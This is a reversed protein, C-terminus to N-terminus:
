ILQVTNKVMDFLVQTQDTDIGSYRTHRIDGM